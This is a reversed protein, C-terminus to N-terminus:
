VYDLLGKVAKLLNNELLFHGTTGVAVMILGM